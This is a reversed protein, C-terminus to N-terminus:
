RGVIAVRLTSVLWISLIIDINFVTVVGGSASRLSMSLKRESISIGADAVPNRPAVPV